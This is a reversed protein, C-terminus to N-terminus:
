AGQLHHAPELVYYHTAHPTEIAARSGAPPPTDHRVLRVHGGRLQRILRSHERPRTHQPVGYALVSSWHGLTPDAPIVGLDAATAPRARRVRACYPGPGSEAERLARDTVDTTAM